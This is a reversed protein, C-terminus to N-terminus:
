PAASTTASKAAAAPLWCLQALGLLKSSASGFRRCSLAVAAAAAPVTSRNSTSKPDFTPVASQQPAASAAAAAATPVARLPAAAAAAAPSASAHAASPPWTPLPPSHAAGRGGPCLKASQVAASKASPAALQSLAAAILPVPSNCSEMAIMADDRGSCFGAKGRSGEVTLLYTLCQTFAGLISTFWNWLRSYYCDGSWKQLSFQVTHRTQSPTRIPPCDTLNFDMFFHCVQKRWSFIRIVSSSLAIAPSEENLHHYHWKYFKIAWSLLVLSACLNWIRTLMFKHLSLKM